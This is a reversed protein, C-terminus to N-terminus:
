LGFNVSEFGAGDGFKEENFDTNLFGVTEKGSVDSKETGVM